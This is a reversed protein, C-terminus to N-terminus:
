YFKFISLYVSSLLWIFYFINMMDRSCNWCYDLIVEGSAILLLILWFSVKNGDATSCRMQTYEPHQVLLEQFKAASNGLLLHLFLVRNDMLDHKNEERM